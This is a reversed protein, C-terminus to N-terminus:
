ALQWTQPCVPLLLLREQKILLFSSLPAGVLSILGFGCATLSEVCGQKPFM